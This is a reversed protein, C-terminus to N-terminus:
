VSVPEQLNGTDDMFVPGNKGPGTQPFLLLMSFFFGYFFIGKNLDLINESLSVVSIMIMFALLLLDKRKIAAAYGYYLICLFLLLGVIGTKLLVALYQNHTNFENLYSIYLGKKFYRDKLLDTESGSGYGVVPSQKVLELILEWRALRPETNEIIKVKDTLDTRLESVYRTKFADVSFILLLVAVSICATVLFFRVRKKGEFVFRPFALNMILLFAIFVARSSLQILGAFLVLCAIIVMWRPMAAQKKIMLWLLAIISFALYMSLYTAHIGIPLAFNHNMFNVTFMSSFPLHFVVMTRLADVYLYIVTVMCALAFVQLLQTRYRALDLHTLSFFLPFLLIGLQRVALNLGEPKNSSYLIALLNLLYLSILLLFPKKVLKSLDEKQIHICTHIGFSILVLQSYFFDYPLVVLFLALHYFSIKNEATDNIFFLQKM